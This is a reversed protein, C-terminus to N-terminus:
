GQLVIGFGGFVCYLGIKLSDRCLSLCLGVAFACLVACLAGLIGWLACARCLACWHVLPLAFPMLACIYPKRSKRGAKDYM